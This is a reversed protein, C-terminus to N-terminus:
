NIKKVKLAQEASLWPEKILMATLLWFQNYYKQAGLMVNKRKAKDRTKERYTRQQVDKLIFSNGLICNETKPREWEM